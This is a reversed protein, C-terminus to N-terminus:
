VIWDFGLDVSRASHTLAGISIVDVGVQSLTNIRELTVSGSVEVLARGKVMELAKIVDEDNFNDLIVIDVQNNLAENLQDLTDVECTIRTTHTSYSRALRIAKAVGGAAAVHNDKILVASGLDARHNYGGGCRVAYRELTRLGPTTKRTDTIRTTVGVGLADVFSRTLTSIGSLRQSFNLALREGKLISRAPGKILLAIDGPVLRDGDSCLREIQVSPDLQFFVEEVLPTGCFIVSERATLSVSGTAEPPICADTTVDGRGLDENLGQTIIDRINVIDLM